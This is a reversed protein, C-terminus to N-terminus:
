EVDICFYITAHTEWTAYNTAIIVAFKKTPTWLASSGVNLPTLHNFANLYCGISGTDELIPTILEKPELPNFFRNLQSFV